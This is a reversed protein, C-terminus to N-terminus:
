GQDPDDNFEHGCGAEECHRVVPGTTKHGRPCIRTVLAREPALPAPLAMGSTPVDHHHAAGTGTILLDGRGIDSRLRVREFEDITVLRRLRELHGTAGLRRAIDAAITLERLAGAQDGREYADVGARTAQTLREMEGARTVTDPVDPTGRYPLRKVIVPVPTACPVLTKDSDQEAVIDVRAARVEEYPLASHDAGLVLLYDRSEEAWGLLPVDVVGGDRPRCHGTLDNRTPTIQTISELTFRHDLKLRLYARSVIRGQAHETLRTFDERLDGINIIAAVQGHLADAIRQLQRQDWDEGVGRVDCVFLDQCARLASRLKDPKESENIGDTYFVAHRVTDPAQEFLNAAMTLWTSMATGGDAEMNSVCVKAEARARGSARQLGSRPYVQTAAHNGAIVAFYTGDALADIAAHVAQKAQPLKQHRDMSLSCDMMIIEAAAAAGVAGRVDRRAVVIVLASVRDDDRAMEHTPAVTM